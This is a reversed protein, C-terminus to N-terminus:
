KVWGREKLEDYLRDVLADHFADLVVPDQERAASLTKKIGHTPVMSILDNVAGATTDDLSDLYDEAPASAAITATPVGFEHSVTQHVLERETVVGNVAALEARRAEIQRSLDALEAELVEPSPQEMNM